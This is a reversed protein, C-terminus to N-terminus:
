IPKILVALTEQVNHDTILIGINQKLQAVIRQIDEVAVPDVGAFPARFRVFVGVVKKDRYAFL